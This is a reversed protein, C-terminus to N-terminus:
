AIGVVSVFFPKKCVNGLEACDVTLKEVPIETMTCYHEVDEVLVAPCNSAVFVKSVEGSRIAKLTRKTGIILNGEKVGLKLEDM